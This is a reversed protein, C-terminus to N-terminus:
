EFVLLLQLLFLYLLDLLLLINVITLAIGIKMGLLTAGYISMGGSMILVFFVPLVWEVFFKASSNNVLLGNICTQSFNGNVNKQELSAGEKLFTLLKLEDYFM